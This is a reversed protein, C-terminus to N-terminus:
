KARLALWFARLVTAACLVLLGTFLAPAVELSLFPHALWLADAGLFAFGWALGFRWLGKKRSWAAWLRVSQSLFAPAVAIYLFFLFMM